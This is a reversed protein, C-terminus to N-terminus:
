LPLDYVVWDTSEALRDYLKRAPANDERTAWRLRFCGEARAIEAVERILREGVGAGRAQPSVYLDHLYMLKGARLPNRQPCFHAFGLVEGGGEGDRTAALGRMADAPDTLWKWLAALKEGELRPVRYFDAYGAYLGEWAPRHPASLPAIRIATEATM